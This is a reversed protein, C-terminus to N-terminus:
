VDKLEDPYKQYYEDIEITVINCKPCIGKKLDKYNYSIKCEPCKSFEIKETKILFIKYGIYICLISLPFYLLPHSFDYKSWNGEWNQLFMIKLGLLVFIIGLIRNTM